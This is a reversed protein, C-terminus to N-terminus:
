EHNLNQLYNIIEGVELDFQDKQGSTQRERQFVDALNISVSLIKEIEFLLDVTDISELRLDRILRTQLTIDKKPRGTVNEVAQLVAEFITEKKM